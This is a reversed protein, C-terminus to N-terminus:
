AEENPIWGVVTTGIHSTNLNGHRDTILNWLFGEFDKVTIKTFPTRPITSPRQWDIGSM